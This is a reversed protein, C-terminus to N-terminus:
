DKSAGFMGFKSITKILARSAHPNLTLLTAGYTLAGAVISVLLNMWSTELRVCYLVVVMLFTAICIKLIAAMAHHLKFLGRGVLVSAAFAFLFAVLTAWAAGKAGARPILVINLAINIIAAIALILAHTKTNKHVIFVLDYGYARLGAFGSAIGIIIIVSDSQGPEYNGLMLRGVAPAEFCLGIVAPLGLGILTVINREILSKALAFERRRYAEAALPLLGLGLGSLITGISFQSVNYAASYVGATSADRMAVLMLRDLSDLIFSMGLTLTLPLGYRFLESIQRSSALRVSFLGRLWRPAASYGAIAYGLAIGLITIALNKKTLAAAAGLVLSLAARLFNFAGYKFPQLDLRVADTSLEFWSQALAFFCVVVIDATTVEFGGAGFEVVSIAVVAVVIIAAVAIWFLLGISGLLQARLRVDGGFQVLCQRLWQFVVGALLGAIAVIVSLRGYEAPTLLRTFIILSILSLLASLVRGCLYIVNQRSLGM